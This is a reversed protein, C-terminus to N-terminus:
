TLLTCVTQEDPPLKATVTSGFFSGSVMTAWLDAHPHSLMWSVMVERCATGYSFSPRLMALTFPWDQVAALALSPSPSSNFISKHSPWTEVNQPSFTFLPHKWYFLASTLAPSCSNPEMVQLFLWPDGGMVTGWGSGSLPAMQIGGHSLHEAQKCHGWGQQHIYLYRRVKHVVISM